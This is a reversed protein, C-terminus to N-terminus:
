SMFCNKLELFKDWAGKGVVENVHLSDSNQNKDGYILKAQENTDAEKESQM